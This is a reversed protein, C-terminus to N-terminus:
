PTAVVRGVGPDAAATATRVAAAGADFYTYSLTIQEVRRTDRDAALAPDVFFVVPLEVTEHPAFTRKEFCFCELKKFYLGTKGPTVNYAAVASVPRDTPNTIRFFALGTEGLRLTKVREDPAFALPSGPAVNTDFRIDITRALVTKPAAPARGTTGGYGTVSCFMGYLPVAAFSLGVMAAFVAVAILATRRNARRDM